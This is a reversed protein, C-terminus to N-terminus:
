LVRQGIELKKILVNHLLLSLPTKTSRYSINFDLLHCTWERVDGAIRYYNNTPTPMSQYSETTLPPPGSSTRVSFFINFVFLYVLDYQSIRLGPIHSQSGCCRTKKVISGDFFFFLLFFIKFPQPM